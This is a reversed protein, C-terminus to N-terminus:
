VSEQPKHKEYLGQEIRELSRGRIEMVKFKVFFISAIAMIAFILFVTKGTEFLLIPFTLAAILNATWNAVSLVGAGLDNSKLNFAEGTMVRM